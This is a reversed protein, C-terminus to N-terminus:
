IDSGLEHLKLTETGYVYQDLTVCHHREGTRVRAHSTIM